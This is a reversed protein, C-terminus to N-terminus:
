QILEAQCVLATGEDIATLIRVAALNHRCWGGLPSLRRFTECDCIWGDVSLTLIHSRHNGHFVFTGDDRIALREPQAAYGWGKIRECIQEWWM